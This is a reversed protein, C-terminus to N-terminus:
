KLTNKLDTICDTYAMSVLAWLSERLETEKKKNKKDVYHWILGYTLVSVCYLIYIQLFILM